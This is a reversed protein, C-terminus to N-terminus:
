AAPVPRPTPPAYPVRDKLANIPAEVVHWSLWAVALTMATLVVFRALPAEPAPRGFTAAVVPLAAIAFPHYVYVGYSVRGLWRFPPSGLVRGAAGAFGRAAHHVVWAFACADLTDSLGAVASHPLGMRLLQAVILLAVAIWGGGRMELVGPRTRSAHVEALLAGLALADLAAPLLVYQGLWWWLGFARCVVRFVPAVAALTWMTPRLAAPPLLLVVWPWLLYFQEEV